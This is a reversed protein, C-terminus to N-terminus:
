HDYGMMIIIIIGFMNRKNKGTRGNYCRMHQAEPANAGFPIIKKPFPPNSCSTNMKVTTELMQEILKEAIPFCFEHKM